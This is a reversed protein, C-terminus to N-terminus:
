ELNLRRAVYDTDNISYGIITLIAAITALDFRIQLAAFIGITLIVDHFLAAVAGWRSASVRNPTHSRM